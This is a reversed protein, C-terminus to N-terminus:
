TVPNNCGRLCGVKEIWQIGMCGAVVILQATTALSAGGVCGGVCAPTAVGGSFVVCGTFCATMTATILGINALSEACGNIGRTFDTNCDSQCDACVLKEFPDHARRLARENEADIAIDADDYATGDLFRGYRELSAIPDASADLAKIPILVSRPSSGTNGSVPLGVRTLEALDMSARMALVNLSGVDGRLEGAVLTLDIAGALAQHKSALAQAAPHGAVGKALPLRTAAASESEADLVALRREGLQVFLGGRDDLLLDAGAAAGLALGFVDADGTPRLGFVEARADPGFIQEAIAQSLGAIATKSEPLLDSALTSTEQAAGPTPLSAVLLAALSLRALHRQSRISIM